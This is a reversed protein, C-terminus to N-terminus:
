LTNGTEAVPLAAVEFSGSLLLFAASYRRADGLRDALGEDLGPFLHGYVDLTTTIEAHGLRSQISWGPRRGARRASREAHSRPGEVGRHSQVGRPTAGRS